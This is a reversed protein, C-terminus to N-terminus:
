SKLLYRISFKNRCIRKREGVHEKEKEKRKTHFGKLVGLVKSMWFKLVELDRFEL